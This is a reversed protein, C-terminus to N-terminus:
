VHISELNFTDGTLTGDAKVKFAKGKGSPRGLAKRGKGSKKLAELTKANGGEDFKIYRGDALLLGFETTASSIACGEKANNQPSSSRCKADILLGSLRREQSGQDTRAPLDERKKEQAFAVLSFSLILGLVVSIKLSTLPRPQHVISMSTIM